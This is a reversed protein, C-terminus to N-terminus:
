RVTRTWKGAKAFAPHDRRVYHYSQPPRLKSARLRALSVPVLKWAKRIRIGYGIERGSFYVDFEERTIGTETSMKKWLQAPSAEIVEAVEFAGELSCRPSSVYVMVLDGSVVRPRVRRLEVTKSGSFIADAYRPKVSILLATPNM